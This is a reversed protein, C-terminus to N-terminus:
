PSTDTARPADRLHKIRFLGCPRAAWAPPKDLRGHCRSSSVCSHPPSAPTRVAMSTHTSGGDHNGLQWADPNNGLDCEEESEVNLMVLNDGADSLFADLENLTDV